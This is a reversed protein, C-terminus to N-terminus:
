TGIMSTINFSKPSGLWFNPNSTPGTQKRPQLGFFLVVFKAPFSPDARLLQSEKQYWWVGGGDGGGVGGGGVVLVVVVVLGWVGEHWMCFKQIFFFFSLFPTSFMDQGYTYTSGLFISTARTPSVIM